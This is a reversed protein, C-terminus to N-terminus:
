RPCEGAEKAQEHRLRDAAQAKVAEMDLPAVQGRDAQEVGVAVLKKLEATKIKQLDLHDKLLWLAHELVEGECLYAGSEVLEKVFPQLQAPLPINM